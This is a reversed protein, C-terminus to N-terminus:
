EVFGEVGRKSGDSTLNSKGDESKAIIYQGKIGSDEKSSKEAIGDKAKYTYNVTAGSKTTGILKMTSNELGDAYEGTIVQKALGEASIKDKFYSSTATGKGNPKDGSFEGEFIYSGISSSESYVARILIGSGSRVDDAFDGYYFYGDEYVAIGKGSKKGNEDRDGYYFSNDKGIVEDVMDVFEETRIMDKVADMDPKEVQFLAILKSLKENHSEELALREAEEQALAEEEAKIRAREIEINDAKIKMNIDNTNVYGTQLTLLVNDEDGNNEYISSMGWYANTNSANYTLADQYAAIAEPGNGLTGALLIYAHAIADKLERSEPEFELAENYKDIASSYYGSDMAANGDSVLIAVANDQSRMITVYYTIFISSVAILAVVIGIIVNRVIRNM